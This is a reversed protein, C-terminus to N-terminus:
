KVKNIKVINASKKTHPLPKFILVEEKFKDGDKSTVDCIFMYNTGAVVQKAVTIPTYKNTTKFDKFAEQFILKDDETLKKQDAFAGVLKTKSDDQSVTIKNPASEKKKDQENNCACGITFLALTFIVIAKKM